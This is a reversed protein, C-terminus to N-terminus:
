YGESVIPPVRLSYSSKRVTLGMSACARALTQKLSEMIADREKATMIQLPFALSNLVLLATQRCGDRLGRSFTPRLRPSPRALRLSIEVDAPIPLVLACERVAPGGSVCRSEAPLHRTRRTHAPRPLPRSGARLGTDHSWRAFPLRLDHPFSGMWPLRVWM